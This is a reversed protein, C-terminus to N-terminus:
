GERVQRSGFAAVMGDEAVGASSPRAAIMALRLARASEDDVVVEEGLRLLLISDEEGTITLESSVAAM